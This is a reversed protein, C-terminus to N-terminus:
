RRAWNLAATAARPRTALWCELSAATVFIKNGGVGNFQARELRGDKICKMITSRCYGTRLCIETITFASAPRKPPNKKWYMREALYENMQTCGLLSPRRRDGGAQRNQPFYLKSERDQRSDEDQSVKREAGRSLARTDAEQNTSKENTSSSWSVPSVARGHISALWCGFWAM